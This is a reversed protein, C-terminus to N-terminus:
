QALAIKDIIFHYDRNLEPHTDGWVFAVSKVHHVDNPSFKWFLIMPIHLETATMPTKADETADALNAYGVNQDNADRLEATFYLNGNPLDGVKGSYPDTKHTVGEMHCTLMLYNYQTADFSEPVTASPKWNIQIDLKKNGTIVSEIAGSANISTPANDVKFTVANASGRSKDFIVIKEVPPNGTNVNRIVTFAGAPAVVLACFIAAFAIAVRPRRLRSSNRNM